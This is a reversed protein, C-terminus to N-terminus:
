NSFLKVLYPIFIILGIALSIVSAILVAGAAIDKVHEAIKRYEKTVMDIILEFATNIVELCLVMCIMVLILLWETISIRFLFGLIISIAAMILQIRFSRENKLVRIIGMVAYKFSSSLSRKHYVIEKKFANKNNRKDVM